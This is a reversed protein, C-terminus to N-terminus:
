TPQIEDSFLADAIDQDHTHILNQLSITDSLFDDTKYGLLKGVGRCVLLVKPPHTLEIHFNSEVTM